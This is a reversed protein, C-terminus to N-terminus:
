LVRKIKNYKNSLMPMIWSNEWPSLANKWSSLVGKEREGMMVRRAEELLMKRMGIEGMDKNEKYKNYRNLEPLLPDFNGREIQKLQNDTIGLDKKALEIDPDIIPFMSENTPNVTTENLLSDNLPNNDGVTQEVKAAPKKWGRNSTWGTLRPLYNWRQNKGEEEKPKEVAPKEVAEGAQSWLNYVNGKEIQKLQNDTIGLDKKAIEIDPDLIPSINPRRGGGFKYNVGIRGYKDSGGLKVGNRGIGLDVAGEIALDPSIQYKAKLPIDANWSVKKDPKDRKALEDQLQNKLTEYDQPDMFEAILKKNEPDELHRLNEKIEAVYEEPVIEKVLNREIYAPSFKIKRSNKPDKEDWNLGVSFKNAVRSEKIDAPNTIHDSKGYFSYGKPFDASLYKQQEPSLERYLDELKQSEASTIERGENQANWYIDRMRMLANRQQEKEAMEYEPKNREWREQNEKGLVEGQKKLEANYDTAQGPAYPQSEQANRPAEKVIKDAKDLFNNIIDLNGNAFATDIQNRDEESLFHSIKKARDITKKTRIRKDAEEQKTKAEIRKDVDRIRNEYYRHWFRPLGARISALSNRYKILDKLSFKDINAEVFAEANDSNGVNVKPLDSVSNPTSRSGKSDGYNSDPHPDGPSSPSSSDVYVEGYALDSGPSYDNEAM